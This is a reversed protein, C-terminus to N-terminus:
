YSKFLSIFLTLPKCTLERSLSNLSSDFQNSSNWIDGGGDAKVWKTHFYVTKNHFPNKFTLFYEKFKGIEAVILPLVKPKAQIAKLKIEYWIQECERSVLGIKDTKTEPHMPKYVLSVIKDSNPPVTVQKPAKISPNSVRIQYSKSKPGTNSVNM